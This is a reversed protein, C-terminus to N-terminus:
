AFQQRMWHRADDVEAPLITHAMDPYRHTELQAGATRLTDWGARAAAFPVVPDAAGHGWFIPMGGVTAPTVRVRADDILFGSCMLVGAVTGPHLLAHCLAMAAGQSFGGIILPRAVHGTRSPLTDVFAGLAALAIGFSSPEPALGPGLGYWAYGAGYGFAAGAFPARAAVVTARPHLARGLPFLDQEDAGLGHLLLLLPAGALGPEHLAHLAPTTM